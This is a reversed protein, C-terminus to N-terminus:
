EMKVLNGDRFQYKVIEKCVPCDAAPADAPFKSIEAFIIRNKIEKIKMNGEIVKTLAFERGTNILILHETKILFNGKYSNIMVVADEDTDNDILGSVIGAPNIIYSIQNDGIRVTGDNLVSQQADGFKERAYAVAIGMVQKEIKPNGAGAKNDNRTCSLLLFILFVILGRRNM